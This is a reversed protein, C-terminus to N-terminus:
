FLTLQQMAPASAAMARRPVRRNVEFSRPEKQASISLQVPAGLSELMRAAMARVISDHNNSESLHILCLERTDEGIMRQLASMADDNSLHGFRSLIRRKLSWPYTGQRLMDLDHNSEFLLADCNTLHDRVPNDVWGLDSAVGARTGDGAEIVFCAPDAADHIIRRPHIMLDGIRFSRNNEFLVIPLEAGRLRSAELTGRTLHVPIGYKKSIPRAGHIHDSHEHTIVIADVSELSAGVELLRRQTERPGFGADVLIRTSESEIWTCNGGSGSGLSVIKM